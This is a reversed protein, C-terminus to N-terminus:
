KLHLFGRKLHPCKLQSRCPRCKFIQPFLRHPLSLLLYWTGSSSSAPRAWSCFSPSTHSSSSSHSPSLADPWSTHHKIPWPLFNPHHELQRPCCQFTEHPLIKTKVKQLNRAATHLFSQLPVLTFARPPPAPPASVAM